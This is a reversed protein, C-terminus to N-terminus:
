RRVAGSLPTLRLDDPSLPRRANGGGFIVVLTVVIALVAFGILAYGAQKEDKVLGGSYKIVWQIIPSTGHDYSRDVRTEQPKVGADQLEKEYKGLIDM